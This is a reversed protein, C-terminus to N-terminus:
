CEPPGDILTIRLRHRGSGPKRKSSRCSAMKMSQKMPKPCPHHKQVRQPRLPVLLTMTQSLICDFQPIEMLYLGDLGGVMRCSGRVTRVM